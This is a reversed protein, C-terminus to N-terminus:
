RQFTLVEDFILFHHVLQHIRTNTNIDEIGALLPVSMAVDVGRLNLLNFNLVQQRTILNLYIKVSHCTQEATGLNEDRTGGSANTGLHHSLYCLETGLLEDQHVGSFCWLMVDSQHQLALEGLHFGDGNDGANGIGIAHLIDELGVFRLIDEM